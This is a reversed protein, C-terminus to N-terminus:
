SLINSAIQSALIYSLLAVLSSNTAALLKKLPFTAAPHSLTLLQILGLLLLPVTGLIFLLPANASIGASLALLSLTTVATGYIFLGPKRQFPKLYLVSAGAMHVTGTAAIGILLWGYIHLM